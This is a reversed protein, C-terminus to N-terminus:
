SEAVVDELAFCGRERRTLRKRLRYGLFCVTAFEPAGFTETVILCEYEAVRTRGAKLAAALAPYAEFEFGEGRLRERRAEARAMGERIATPTM